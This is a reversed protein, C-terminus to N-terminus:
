HVRYAGTAAKLGGELLGMPFTLKRSLATNYCKYM